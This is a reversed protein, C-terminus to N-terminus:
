FFIHLFIHLLLIERRSSDSDGLSVIKVKVLTQLQTWLRMVVKQGGSRRCTLDGRLWGGNGTLCYSSCSMYLFVTLRKRKQARWILDDGTTDLQTELHPLASLGPPPHLGAVSSFSKLDDFITLLNIKHQYDQLIENGFASYWCKQCSIDGFYIFYEPRETNFSVLCAFFYMQSIYNIVRCNYNRCVYCVVLYSNECKVMEVHLFVCKM